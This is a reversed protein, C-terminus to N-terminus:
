EPSSQQAALTNIVLQCQHKAYTDLSSIAADCQQTKIQQLLNSFLLLSVHVESPNRNMALYACRRMAPMLDLLVSRMYRNNTNSIVLETSSFALYQFVSSDNSEAVSTLKQVFKELQALTTQDCHQCLKRVVRQLLLFFMEYLSRVGDPTLESVVAGKRPIMQILHWQELTILAERLSNRSVELKASMTQEIIREGAVLEGTIIMESLHQAIYENLPKPGLM